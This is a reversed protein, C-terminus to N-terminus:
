LFVQKFKAMVNQPNYQEYMDWNKGKFDSKQIDTLISSITDPQYIIATDKLMHLHAMDVLGGSAWDTTIIPKNLRSFEAVSLGFSEGGDRAHLMADCTNIFAVKADMDYTGELFSINSVEEGFPNVNMFVFHIDTRSNAVQLVADKVWPINFSDKGGHYGLVLTDSSINLQERLDQDHSYKQIDVIHPVYHEWNMKKAIWESVYAYREGHPQHMQFVSHVLNKANPVIKGDFNGAKIYYVMDIAHKDVLSVVESFNAYLHTEFEKKFKDLTELNSNKNSIIYPEIGLFERSYYAYDYLAIETGRLGLQESHFAIKM